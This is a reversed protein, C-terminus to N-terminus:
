SVTLSFAALVFISPAWRIYRGIAQPVTGFAPILAILFWWIYAFCYKMFPLRNVKAGDDILNFTVNM